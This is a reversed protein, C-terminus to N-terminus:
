SRGPSASRWPQASAGRAPAQPLLPPSPAAPSRHRHVTHVAVTRHACTRPLVSVLCCRAAIKQKKRKKSEEGKAEAKTEEALAAKIEKVATDDLLQTRCSPLAPYSVLAPGPVVPPCPRTHCSPLAPYSILVPGPIFPPLAPYSM